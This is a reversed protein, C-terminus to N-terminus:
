RVRKMTYTGHDMACKYNAKFEDGKITGEYHYLGGAWDPMKHEGSFKYSGDKQKKVTHVSRYSGSLIKKWTARYFFSRPAPIPEAGKGAGYDPLEAKSVVCRLDGHHGNADSLWTGKWKGEVGSTVPAKKWASRFAFGCSPLCTLLLLGLTLRLLPTRNM